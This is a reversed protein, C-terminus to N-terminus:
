WSRLTTSWRARLDSEGPTGVWDVVAVMTAHASVEESLGRIHLREGAQEAPSEITLCVYHGDAADGSVTVTGLSARHAWDAALSSWYPACIVRYACWRCKDASPEARELFREPTEVVGNFGAIADKVEQLAREAENVDLESSHRAGSADEIAITRPWAGSARHVLVAYLLLQRRQDLTPTDQTLGTKLDVVRTSTGDREIRDARGFLGSSADRLEIEIGTGEASRRPEPSRTAM